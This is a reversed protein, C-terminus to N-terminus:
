PTAQALASALSERFAMSSDTARSITDVQASQAAIAESRLQPLAFNNIEISNGRDSPYDLIQVDTMKGNQIVAAVQINGYYADASVGTYTGDKYKGRPTPPPTATPPTAAVPPPATHPPKASSPATGSSASSPASSATNFIVLPIAGGSQTATVREYVLYVFFLTGVSLSLFFKRITNNSM